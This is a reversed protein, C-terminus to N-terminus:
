EKVRIKLQSKHYIKVKILIHYFQFYLVRCNLVLIFVMFNSFFINVVLIHAREAKKQSSVSNHLKM